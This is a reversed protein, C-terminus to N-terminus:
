KEVYDGKLEICKEWRLKIAEISQKYLSGDFDEFYGYVTSEVEENNAFSGNKWTKFSFLGVHSFRAFLTCSSVIRVKIWQNQNQGGRYRM